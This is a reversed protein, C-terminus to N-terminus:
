VPTLAHCSPQLLPPQLQVMFCSVAPELGPENAVEASEGGRGGRNGERVRWERSGGSQQSGRSGAGRERSQRDTRDGRTVCGLSLRLSPKLPGSKKSVRSSCGQATSATHAQSRKWSSLVQPLWGLARVVTGFPCTSQFTLPRHQLTYTLGSSAVSADWTFAPECACTRSRM